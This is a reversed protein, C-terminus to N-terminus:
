GRKAKTVTIWGCSTSTIKTCITGQEWEYAQCVTMYNSGSFCPFPKKKKELSIQDVETSKKDESVKNLFLEIGEYNKGFNM